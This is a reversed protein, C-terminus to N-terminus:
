WGSTEKCLDLRGRTTIDTSLLEEATTIDFNEEDFFRNGLPNPMHMKGLVYAAEEGDSRLHDQNGLLLYDAISEGLPKDIVHHVHTYSRIWAGGVPSFSFRSM